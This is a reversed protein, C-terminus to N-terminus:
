IEEKSEERTNYCYPCYRWNSQVTRGCNNCTTKLKENCNPCIVEGQNVEHGCNSCKIIQESYREVNGRIHINYAIVCILIILGVM